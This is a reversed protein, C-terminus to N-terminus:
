FDFCQHYSGKPFYISAYVEYAYPECDFKNWFREDDEDPKEEFGLAKWDFNFGDFSSYNGHSGEYSFCPTGFVDKNYKGLHNLIQQQALNLNNFWEDYGEKKVLVLFSSSSSNSVFGNRVKM